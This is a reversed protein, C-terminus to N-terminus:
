SGGCRGSRDAVDDPARARQAAGVLEAVLVLVDRDPAGASNMSSLRYRPSFHTTNSGFSSGSHACIRSLTPAKMCLRNRWPANWPVEARSAYKTCTRCAVGRRLVVDVEADDVDDDAERRELGRLEDHELDLLDGSLDLGLTSLRSACPANM